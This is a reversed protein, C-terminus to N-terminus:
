KGERFGPQLVLCAPIILFKAESLRQMLETLGTHFLTKRHGPESYASPLLHCDNNDSNNIIGQTSPSHTVLPEKSPESPGLSTDTSGWGPETDRDGGRSWEM